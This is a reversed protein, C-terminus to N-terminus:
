NFKCLIFDTYIPYNVLPSFAFYQNENNQEPNNPQLTNFLLANCTSTGNPDIPLNISRIPSFPAPYSMYVVLENAIYYTSTEISGENVTVPVPTFDVEEFSINVQLFSNTFSDGWNLFNKPLLLGAESYVVSYYYTNFGV